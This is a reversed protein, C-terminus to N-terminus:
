PESKCRAASRSDTEDRAARFPKFGEVCPTSPNLRRKEKASALWKSPSM